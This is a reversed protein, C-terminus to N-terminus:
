TYPSFGQLGQVGPDGKSYGGRMHPFSKIIMWIFYSWLIVGMYIFFVLEFIMLRFIHLSDGGYIHLLSKIFDINLAQALIVGVCIPFVLLSLAWYLCQHFLGWAYPFVKKGIALIAM